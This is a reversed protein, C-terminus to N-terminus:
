FGKVYQFTFKSPKGTLANTEQSQLKLMTGLGEVKGGDATELDGIAVLQAPASKLGDGEVYIALTGTFANKSTGPDYTVACLKSSAPIDTVSKICVFNWFEDNNAQTVKKLVAYSGDETRWISKDDAEFPYTKVEDPLKPNPDRAYAPLAKVTADDLALKAVQWDSGGTAASPSTLEFVQVEDSNTLITAISAGGFSIVKYRSFPVCNVFKWEGGAIDLKFAYTADFQVGLLGSFELTIQENSRNLIVVKVEDKIKIQTTLDKAAAPPLAPIKGGGGTTPQDQAQAASLAAVSAICVSALLAPALAFSGSITTKRM